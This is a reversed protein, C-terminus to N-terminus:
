VQENYYYAALLCNKEDNNFCLKSLIVNKVVLFELIFQQKKCM